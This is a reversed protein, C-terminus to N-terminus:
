IKIVLIIVQMRSVKQAADQKLRYSRTTDHLRSELRGPLRGRKTSVQTAFIPNQSYVVDIQVQAFHGTLNLGCVMDLCLAWCPM